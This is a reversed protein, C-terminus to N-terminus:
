KRLLFYAAFALVGATVLFAVDKDSRIKAAIKSLQASIEAPDNESAVVGQFDSLWRPLDEPGLGVMIPVINKKGYLAGGIEQQVANSAMSDPTALVFVWKASRLSELINETWNEGAPLSLGALFTSLQHEDFSKKLKNALEEDQHSYSIFIDPM